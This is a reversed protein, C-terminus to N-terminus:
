PKSSETTEILKNLRLAMIKAHEGAAVRLETAPENPLRERLRGLMEAASLGTACVIFIYGFRAEYTRNGEALAQLTEESAAAVGQQEGASWSATSAYKERLLALDAGIRPHHGFAERWDGEDLDWWSRAAEGLLQTRSRFPRLAVMQALWRGAGCCRSLAARAENESLSNLKQVLPDSVAEGSLTGWVRMRAMGGDPLIRLRLHTWPGPSPIEVEHEQDARMKTPPLIEKWDPHQPLLHPPADPWYLADVAARDPYNGKYHGTDLTLREVRGAGCLAVIIWDEGPPRSRRTEWGGGMFASRGPLLLNNMHSFFMDSCAVARGGNVLAALDLRGEGRVPQPEGYVRLRAVGGDPYINLRVHTWIAESSVAQLNHSGRRLPAEKLIRTWQVSDRLEEPSTNPSVSCADVSAFPPHNGLFHATDIDVGRILGPVGLKLICWDHGGVRKRRSEWGDMEKGRDTYTSPDFLAAKAKVLNGMGAFFDDSCLLAQGGVDECLLDVLGAFAAVESM